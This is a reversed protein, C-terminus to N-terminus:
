VQLHLLNLTAIAIYEKDQSIPLNVAASSRSNECVVELLQDLLRCSICGIFGVFM